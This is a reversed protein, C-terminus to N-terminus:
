GERFTFLAVDHLSVVILCWIELGCYALTVAFVYMAASGRRGAKKRLGDLDEDDGELDSGFVSDVESSVDSIEEDSGGGADEAIEEVGDEDEDGEDEEEEPHDELEGPNKM